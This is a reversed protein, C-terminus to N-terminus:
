GHWGDGLHPSIATHNIAQRFTLDLLLSDLLLAPTVKHISDLNPDTFKHNSQRRSWPLENCLALSNRM